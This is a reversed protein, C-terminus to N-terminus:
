AVERYSSFIIKFRVGMTTSNYEVNCKIAKNSITFYTILGPLSGTDQKELAFKITQPSNYIMSKVLTTRTVSSAVEGSKVSGLVNKCATDSYYCVTASQTILFLVVLTLSRLM